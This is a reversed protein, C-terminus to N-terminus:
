ARRPLHDDLLKRVIAGQSTAQSKARDGLRASLDEDLGITIRHTGWNRPITADAQVTQKKM